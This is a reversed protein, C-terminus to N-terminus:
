RGKEVPLSAAHNVSGPLIQRRASFPVGAHANGNNNENMNKSM